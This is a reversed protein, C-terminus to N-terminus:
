KCSRYRKDKASSVEPQRSARTFTTTTLDNRTAPLAGPTEVTRHYSQASEPTVEEPDLIKKAYRETITHRYEAILDLPGLKSSSKGFGDYHSETLLSNDVSKIASINSIQEQLELNAKREEQIYDHVKNQIQRNHANDGQREENINTQKAEETRSEKVLVAKNRTSIPTHNSVDSYSSMNKPKVKPSSNHKEPKKESTKGAPRRKSQM